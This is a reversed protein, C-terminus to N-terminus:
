GTCMKIAVGATQCTMVAESVGDRLPDEIATVAVLTLDQALFAFDVDGAEDYQAGVPPWQAFDRACLAITRLSQNAYFIITRRINERTENTFDAVPIEDVETGKIEITSTTDQPLQQVVVVHRNSLKALVESAGKFLVRYGRGGSLEFVAGMVKRESSFSIMQVITAAQRVEKYDRWGQAQAFALLATETKSGVFGTGVGHDDVGEFATSNITISDNLLCRLSPSLYQDITTMDTSFDLREESRERQGEEKGGQTKEEAKDTEAEDDGTRNANSRSANDALRDAFKLHVGISGAVVSMRNQTLTGTKDTCIVTANAMTECAGLVRVLLGQHMMRRTAFALALTVALPLGEPVAVVVITVSIILIQIFNQAKDNPSRNDIAYHLGWDACDRNLDALSCALM